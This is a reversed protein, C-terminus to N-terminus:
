YAWGDPDPREPRKRGLRAMLRILAEHLDVRHGLVLDVGLVLLAEYVPSRAIRELHRNWLRKLAAKATATLRRVASRGRHALHHLHHM